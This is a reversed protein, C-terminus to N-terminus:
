LVFQQSFPHLYDADLPDYSVWASSIAKISEFYKDGKSGYQDKHTYVTKEIHEKKIVTRKFVKANM